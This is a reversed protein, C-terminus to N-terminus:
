MSGTVSKELMEQCILKIQGQAQLSSKKTIKISEWLKIRPSYPIM